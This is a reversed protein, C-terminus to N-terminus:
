FYSQCYQWLLYGYIAKFYIALTIGQKRCYHKLQDLSHGHLILQQHCPQENTVEPPPFDLVDVQECQHRWFQQTSELDVTRNNLAINSFLLDLPLKATKNETIAEYCQCLQTLYNTGGVGDLLLHHVALVAICHNNQTQILLHRVLENNTVDYPRFIFDNILQKLEDASYNKDSHDQWELLINQKREVCQYAIDAGAQQCAKFNVRLAPQLQHLQNIAQQWCDPDVKFDITLSYGTSNYISDPQSIADLFIDRQSTTLPTIQEYSRASLNLTQFLENSHIIDISDIPIEIDLLMLRIIEQFATGMKEITSSKFLTTNYEFGCEIVNNQEVAVLMLDYKATESEIPLAQWELGALTFAENPINQLAFGVQAIPPYSLNRDPAIAEVLYEFPLDQHSFGNLTMTKVRQLLSRLSPNTQCDIRMIVVNVFLGILNELETRDRGAVPSGICIDKQQSLKCLLIAFTSLLTMYLTTDTQHLIKHLDSTTKKDLTFYHHKGNFTQSSPRPFDLPLNLLTPIGDLQQQWFQLKQTLRDQTLNQRQWHAYDAYQIPLNAVVPTNNAYFQSLEQLIVNISWGDSIIHHLTMLLVFENDHLKILTLRTLCDKNLNFPKQSEAQILQNKVISQDPEPLSTLDVQEITIDLHESVVINDENFQYRLIEHRQILQAFCHQLQDVNLIGNIHIANSINYIASGPMLQDLFWLREQAYSMVIPMQQRDFPTLKISGQENPKLVIVDIEAALQQLTPSEFITKLPLEISFETRIASIVQGALLSHGGCHFFHDEKAPQSSLKLLTQWIKALTKETPTTLVSPKKTDDQSIKPLAQRNIKGHATLPWQTVTKYASPLMFEPLVLSLQHNLDATKMNEQQTLLWAQIQQQNVMVIADEIENLQTLCSEIEALEIRYGRLKVQNDMRGLYEINGDDIFRVLDGTKYLSQPSCIDAHIFKQQSLEKNKWYGSGVSKGSICLEGTVGIPVPNLQPDLVWVQVNPIPKGIPINKNLWYKWDDIKFFTTIDTCETPGYSNILQTSSNSTELWNQLRSLEITEGGLVLLRLSHLHPFSPPQGFVCR